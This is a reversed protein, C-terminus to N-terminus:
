RSASLPANLGELLMQATQAPIEGIVTARHMGVRKGMALIAGMRTAGELGQQTAPEIYISASGIGDSVVLHHMQGQDGRVHEAVIQFGPPLVDLQWGEGLRMEVSESQDLTPQPLPDLRQQHREIIKVETFMVQEIPEGAEDVLEVKLALDADMDIFFRYGYRYQDLPILGVVHTDRGAVRSEGLRLIQYHANIQDFAFPGPHLVAAGGRSSPLIFSGSDPLMCAVQDGNRALARVPGSLALLSENLKGNEVRQSLRLASMRKDHLYVLTGDYDTSRQARVMRDLLEEATPARTEATSDTPAAEAHAPSLFSVSMAPVAALGLALTLAHILPQTRTRM